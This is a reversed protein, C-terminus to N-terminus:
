RRIAITKEPKFSCHTLQINKEVLQSQANTKHPIAVKIYYFAKIIICACVSTCNHVLPYTAISIFIKQNILLIILQNNTNM